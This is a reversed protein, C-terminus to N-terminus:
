VENSCSARAKVHHRGDRLKWLACHKWRVVVNRDCGDKVRAGLRALIALGGAAASIRRHCAHGRDGVVRAALAHPARRRADARWLPTAGRAVLACREELVTAGREAALFRWEEAARWVNGELADASWVQVKRLAPGGRLFALAGGTRQVGGGGGGLGALRACRRRVRRRWM